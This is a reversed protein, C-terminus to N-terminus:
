EDVLKSLLASFGEAEQHYAKYLRGGIYVENANENVIEMEIDGDDGRGEVELFYRLSRLTDHDYDDPLDFDRRREGRKHSTILHGNECLRYGLLTGKKYIPPNQPKRSICVYWLGNNDDIRLRFDVAVAERTTKFTKFVELNERGAKTLEMAEAVTLYPVRLPDVRLLSRCDRCIKIGGAISHGGMFGIKNNCIPCLPSQM